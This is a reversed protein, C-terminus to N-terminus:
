APRSGGIDHYALFHSLAVQPNGPFIASQQWRIVTLLTLLKAGHTLFLYHKTLSVYYSINATVVRNRRRGGSAIFFISRSSPGGVRGTIKLNSPHVGARM